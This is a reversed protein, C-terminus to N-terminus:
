EPRPLRPNKIGRIPSAPSIKHRGQVTHEPYGIIPRIFIRIGTGKHVEEKPVCGWVVLLVGHLDDEGDCTDVVFADDGGHGCGEGLALDVDEVDGLGDHAFVEGHNHVAGEVFGLLVEDVQLFGHGTDFVFLLDLNANLSFGDELCHVGDLRGGHHIVINKFSDSHDLLLFEVNAGDGHADGQEVAGVGVAFYGAAFDVVLDGTACRVEDADAFADLGLEADRNDVLADGDGGDRQHCAGGAILVVYFEGAGEVRCGLCDAHVEDTAEAGEDVLAHGGGVFLQNAGDRSRECFGVHDAGGYVNAGGASADVHAGDLEHALGDAGGCVQGRVGVAEAAGLEDDECVGDAVVGEHRACEM